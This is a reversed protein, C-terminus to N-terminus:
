GVKRNNSESICPTVSPPLSLSLSPSNLGIANDEAALADKQFKTTNYQEDTIPKLTLSNTDVIELNNNIDNLM